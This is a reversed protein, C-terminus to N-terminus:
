EGVGRAAASAAMLTEVACGRCLRREVLEGREPRHEDEPLMVLKRGADAVMLAYSKWLEVGCRACKPTFTHERNQVLMAANLTAVANFWVRNVDRDRM